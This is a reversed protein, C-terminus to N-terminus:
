LEIKIENSLPSETGDAYVMRVCYLYTVGLRLAKDTYSQANFVRTYTKLPADGSKRYIVAYHVPKGGSSSWSLVANNDAVRKKLTVTEGKSQPVAFAQKSIDSRNGAFDVAQIGYHYREGAVADPDTYVNLEPALLALTDFRDVDAAKRLILYESIDNSPSPIISIEVKNKNFVIDAFQPAVPAVIDYRPISAVPSLDSQNDRLDVANIKYYVQKTLTNLNVTDTYFTDAVMVPACMMFNRDPANSRFLRYGKVEPDPHKTWTLHVIGLSDCYGGPAAPASPPISDVLQAFFPFPNIKEESLNYASLFYYNDLLPARDTFTRQAPDTGTYILSKQASSSSSRYIKFGVIDADSDYNWTLAVSKNDASEASALVPEHEIPVVKKTKVPQSAPSEEGFSDVGVIRYQYNRGDEALTDSYFMRGGREQGSIALPSDTIRDFTKGGDHSREVYYSNFRQSSSHQWWVVLSKKKCYFYPASPAALPSYEALGTFVAATDSYATDAQAPYITYLYKEDPKVDTDKFYLGSLRAATVSMDASFLAFGLRRQQDQHKKFAKMPLYGSDDADPEGFICEGAIMAYKDDEHQEWETLPAATVPQPTIIKREVPNTLRGKRLITAREIIYGCTNGRQWLDYDLPAWRLQIDAKGPKALAALRPQQTQAYATPMQALHLVSILFITTIPKM